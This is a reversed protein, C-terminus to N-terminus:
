EAQNLLAELEDVGTPRLVRGVEEGDRLLIFAPWLKVGFARGLRRGKGDEVALHRIAPHHPLLGTSLVVGARCHPCSDVGFELLLWGPTAALTERAPDIRQYHM